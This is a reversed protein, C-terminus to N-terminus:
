CISTMWNTDIIRLNEIHHNINEVNTRNENSSGSNSMLQLHLHLRKRHLVNKMGLLKEYDHQSMQLLQLGNKIHNRCEPIYQEFSNSELWQCIKDNNYKAFETNLLSSFFIIRNISLSLSLSLLYKSSLVIQHEM